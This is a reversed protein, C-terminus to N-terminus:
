HYDSLLIALIIGFKRYGIRSEAADGIGKTLSSFFGWITGLIAWSAVEAPGLFAAFITLVAWEANSLVSWFALPIATKLMARRVTRNMIAPKRTMGKIFPKLWGNAIAMTSSLLLYGSSTGLYMWAVSDLNFEINSKIWYVLIIVNTMSKLLDITTTFVDHGTVDLLPGIAQHISDTVYSWIYIKVFDQAQEAVSDDGWALYLIIEYTFCYWFVLFPAGVILYLSLSLQVYQGALFNNNAGIAHAIMTTNAYIPGKLFEESLAVLIEVVAYAAVQKTGVYWSILALSVNSLASSSVAYFTFPGAHRLIRRSEKDLRIISKLSARFKETDSGSSTLPASEVPLANLPTVNEELKVYETDECQASGPTFPSSNQGLNSYENIDAQASGTTPKSQALTTAPIDGSGNDVNDSGSM